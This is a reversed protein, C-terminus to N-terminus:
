QALAVGEFGLFTDIERQVMDKTLPTDVRYTLAFSGAIDTNVHLYPDVTDFTMEMKELHADHINYYFAKEVVRGEQLLNNMFAVSITENGPPLVNMGHSTERIIVYDETVEHAHVRPDEYVTGDKAKYSLSDFQPGAYNFYNQQVLANFQTIAYYAEQPTKMTEALPSSSPPYTMPLDPNYYLTAGEGLNQNYVGCELADDYTLYSLTHSELRKTQKADDVYIGGEVYLSEGFRGRNLMITAIADEDSSQAVSTSGQITLSESIGVYKDFAATYDFDHVGQELKACLSRYEDETLSEKKFSEVLEPDMADSASAESSEESIITQSSEEVSASSSSSVVSSSDGACSALLLGASLIILKRM